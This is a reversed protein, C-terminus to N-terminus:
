VELLKHGRTYESRLKHDDIKIDKIMMTLLNKLKTMSKECSAYSLSYCEEDWWIEFIIKDKKDPYAWDYSVKGILPEQHGIDITFHISSTIGEIDAYEEISFDKPNLKKIHEMIPVFNHRIPNASIFNNIEELEENTIM